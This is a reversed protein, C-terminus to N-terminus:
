GGGSRDLQARVVTGLESLAEPRPEEHGAGRGEAEGRLGEVKRQLARIKTELLDATM